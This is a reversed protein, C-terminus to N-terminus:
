VAAGETWTHVKPRHVTNKRKPFGTRDIEYINIIYYSKPSGSTKIEQNKKWLQIENKTTTSSRPKKDSFKTSKLGYINQLVEEEEEPLAETLKRTPLNRIFPSAPSNQLKKSISNHM